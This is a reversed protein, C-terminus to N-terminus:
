GVKQCCVRAAHGFLRCLRCERQDRAVYCMPKHKCNGCKFETATYPVYFIGRVADNTDKFWVGEAATIQMPFPAGTKTVFLYPKDPIPFWKFSELTTFLVGHLMLPDGTSVPGGGSPKGTSPSSKVSATGSGSGGKSGNYAKVYAAFDVDQDMQGQLASEEGNMRVPNITKPKTGIMKDAKKGSVDRVAIAHARVNALIVRYIEEIEQGNECMTGFMTSLENRKTLDPYENLLKNVFLVYPNVMQMYGFRMWLTETDTITVIFELGEKEGCKSNLFLSLEENAQKPTSRVLKLFIIQIIPALMDNGLSPDLSQRVEFGNVKLVIPSSCLAELTNNQRILLRYQSLIERVVGVLQTILHDVLGQVKQKVLCSAVTRRARALGEIGTRYYEVAELYKVEEDELVIGKYAKLQAASANEHTRKWLRVAQTALQEVEDLPTRSNEGFSYEGAGVIQRASTITKNLKTSVKSSYDRLLRPSIGSMCTAGLTTLVVGNPHKYTSTPVGFIPDSMITESFQILRRGGERDIGSLESGKAKMKVVAANKEVTIIFSKVEDTVTRVGSAPDLSLAKSTIGTFIFAIKAETEMTVMEEWPPISKPGRSTVVSVTEEDIGVTDVEVNYIDHELLEEDAKIQEEQSLLKSQMTKVTSREMKAKRREEIEREIFYQEEILGNKQKDKIVPKVASERAKKILAQARSHVRMEFDERQKMLLLEESVIKHAAEEVLLDEEVGPEVKVDEDYYALTNKIDTAIQVPSDMLLERKFSELSQVKGPRRKKIRVLEKEGTDHVDLYSETEEESEKDPVYDPDDPEVRAISAGMGSSHSELEESDDSDDLFSEEEEDELLLLRAAARAEARIERETRLLRSMDTEEEERVGESQDMHSRKFYKLNSFLTVFLNKGIIVPKVSL